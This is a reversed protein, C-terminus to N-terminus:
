VLSAPRTPVANVASKGAFAARPVPCGRVAPQARTAPSERSHGGTAAARAKVGLLPAGQAPATTPRAMTVRARWWDWCCCLREARRQGAWGLEGKCWGGGSLNTWNLCPKDSQGSRGVVVFIRRCSHGSIVLLRKGKQIRNRLPGQSAAQRSASVTSLSPLDPPLLDRARGSFGRPRPVGSRCRRDDEWRSGWSLLLRGSELLRYDRRLVLLEPGLMWALARSLGHSNCTGAPWVFRM